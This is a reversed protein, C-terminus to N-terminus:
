NPILEARPAPSKESSIPVPPALREKAMFLGPISASKKLWPRLQDAFSVTGTLSSRTLVGAVPAGAIVPVACTPCVSVAVTPSMASTSPNGSGKRVSALVLKWHIRTAVSLLSVSM